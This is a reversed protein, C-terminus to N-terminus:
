TGLSTLWEDVTVTDSPAPSPGRHWGQRRLERVKPYASLDSEDRTQGALRSVKRSLILMGAIGLAALAGFVAAGQQRPRHPPTSAAALVLLLAALLLMAGTLVMLGKILVPLAHVRHCHKCRPVRVTTQTYRGEPLLIRGSLGLVALNQAALLVADRHANGEAHLVQEGAWDPDVERRGCFWCLTAAGAGAELADRCAPCLMWAEGRNAEVIQRWADHLSLGSAEAVQGLAPAATPVFGRETADAVTEPAVTVAEADTLERQCIDCAM